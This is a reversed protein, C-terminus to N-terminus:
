QGYGNARFLEQQQDIIDHLMMRLPAPKSVLHYVYDGDKRETRFTWGRKELDRIRSALRSTVFNRLCYNRSIFGNMEILAKVNNLQTM